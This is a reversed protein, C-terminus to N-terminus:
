TAILNLTRLATLVANLQTVVTGSSADAIAAQQGAGLMTPHTEDGVRVGECDVPGHVSFIRATNEVRVLWQVAPSGDVSQCFELSPAGGVGDSTARLGFDNWGLSPNLGAAFMLAANIEGGGGGAAVLAALATKDAATMYGDVSNTAAPMSIVGSTMVLPAQVGSALARDLGLLGGVVALPAKVGSAVIPPLGDLKAKDGATMYGNQGATAAPIALQGGTLTLPAAYKLTLAGGTAAFPDSVSNIVALAGLKAKDAPDMFGWALSTARPAVGSALARLAAFDAATLYGDQTASAAPLSVESDVLELPLAFTLETTGLGDLKVKDAASMYGPQAQTAAPLSVVGSALRLPAAFVLDAEAVLSALALKDAASMFGATATTAVSHGHNGPAAQAVGSGLIVYLGSTSAGLPAHGAGTSIDLKVNPQLAGSWEVTDSNGFYGMLWEGPGAEGWDLADAAHTHNGRAAQTSGTGFSVALGSASATLGSLAALKVEASLVQGALSLTLSASPQLTLADHLQEHTHDGTAAQTADTGFDVALGGAGSVLGASAQVRV